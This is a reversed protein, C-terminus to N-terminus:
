NVSYGKSEMCSAYARVIDSGAAAEAEEKDRNHSRRGQVAGTGAGIAAGSGGGIIAGIGAGVISRKATKHERQEETPTPNASVEDQAWSYCNNEDTVQQERSQNNNPYVHLGPIGQANLPNSLGIFIMSVVLLLHQLELKINISKM